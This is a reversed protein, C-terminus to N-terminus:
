FKSSFVKNIVTQHPFHCSEGIETKNFFTRIDAQARAETESDYDHPTQFQTDHPELHAPHLSSIEDITWEFHEQTRQPTSIPTMTPRKLLLPSYGFEISSM